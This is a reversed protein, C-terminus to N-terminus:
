SKYLEYIENVNTLKHYTKDVHNKGAAAIDLGSQPNEYLDIVNKALIQFDEAILISNENQRNFDRLGPVDYLIAPIQCALAEITTISIGEFKSTMLYVDSSILYKRVDVQNGVFRVNDEVGLDISLKKECSETDGEGLHLYICNPIKKIILPLAKIIDTHRKILSCGGVSIIVFASNDVGLEKRVRLKEEGAAPFYRENDFWNYVKKTKNKYLNLENEFVSDSISQFQCNFIRSAFWRMLFHYPYLFRRKSFVNHLTCVCKKNTLWAAFSMGLMTGHSHIHVVDVNEKKFLKVIEFYFHLLSIYQSYSPITKHLTKYGAREFFSAYDGIKEGTALVLLECGNEQFVPAAGVYMVEGGSFKLEHFVHMVKLKKIKNTNM